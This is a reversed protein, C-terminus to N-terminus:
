VAQRDLFARVRGYLAREASTTPAHGSGPVVECADLGSLVSRARECAREADFFVDEAGFSVFAPGSFAALASGDVVPLGKRDVDLRTHRYGLGLLEVFSRDPEVGSAFFPTAAQTGNEDTPRVMYRVAGFGARLQGRLTFPVLGGSDLLSLTRVRSPAFAALKLAIWGGFSVGILHASAIGLADLVAALWSPYGDGDRGPRAGDSKGPMGIVDVAVVRYGDRLARLGEAMIAANMNMGHVVVVPDANVPGTALVHTRGSPTQVYRSEVDFTLAAVESDYWRFVEERGGPSKYISPTM